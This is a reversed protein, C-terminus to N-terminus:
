VMLALYEVFNRTWQKIHVTNHNLAMNMRQLSISLGLGQMKSNLRGLATLDPFLGPRRWRGWLLSQPWRLVRGPRQACRGKIRVMMM